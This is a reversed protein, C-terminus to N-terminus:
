GPVHETDQIWTEADLIFIPGGHGLKVLIKILQLLKVFFLVSNNM